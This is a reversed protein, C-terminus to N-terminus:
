ICMFHADNIIVHYDEVEAVGEVQVQVEGEVVVAVDAVVEVEVEVEGEVVKDVDTMAEVEVEVEGEVVVDVDGVVEVEVEVEAQVEVEAGVEPKSDCKKYYGRVRNRFIHTWIRRVVIEVRDTDECHLGLAVIVRDERASIWNGEVRVFSGTSM